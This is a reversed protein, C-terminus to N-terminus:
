IVRIEVKDTCMILILVINYTSTYIKVLNINVINGNIKITKISKLM